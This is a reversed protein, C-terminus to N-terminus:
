KPERTVTCGEFSFNFIGTGVVEMSLKSPISFGDVTRYEVEVRMEQAQAPPAGDALIHALFRIVLLGKETPSYTPTFDIRQGNMKVNFRRLILGSDLVEVVDTGTEQAHLRYGGDATPAMELGQSNAPVVSGDVFPTWFQLFGQLTQESAKHMGDLLSISDQDLPKNTPAPPTWDLTSGGKMRAHLAIAVSNLLVVRPDNIAVSGASASAFLGLWDPHVACDFGSLGERSTSYYLAAAKALLADDSPTAPQSQAPAPASAVAAAPVSAPAPTQALAAAPILCVALFAASLATPLKLTAKLM